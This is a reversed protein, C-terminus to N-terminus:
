RNTQAELARLFWDIPQKACKASFTYLWQDHNARPYMAKAIFAQNALRLIKRNTREEGFKEDSAQLMKVFDEVWNSSANKAQKIKALEGPADAIEQPTWVIEDLIQPKTIHENLWDVM